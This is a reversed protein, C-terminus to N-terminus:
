PVPTATATATPTAEELRGVTIRITSGEPREDGTVPAQDQVVGDQAPDDVTQDSVRVQFGADELDSRADDEPLELVDPAIRERVTQALAKGDILQAAM